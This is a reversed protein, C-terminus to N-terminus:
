AFTVHAVTIPGSGHEHTDISLVNDMVTVPGHVSIRRWQLMIHGLGRASFQGGLLIGSNTALDVVDPDRPLPNSRDPRFFPLRSFFSPPAIVKHVFPRSGGTLTGSNYVVNAINIPGIDEGSPEVALTNHVVSVRGGVHLNRWQMGIDGFGGGSFQNQVLIGSNTAQDTISRGLASPVLVPAVVGNRGSAVPVVALQAAGPNAAQASAVTAASITTNIPAMGPFRIDSLTIPGTGAGINLLIINHVILLGHNRSMNEWQLIIPANLRDIVQVHDLLRDNVHDPSDAVQQRRASSAAARPRSHSTRARTPVFPSPKLDTKLKV